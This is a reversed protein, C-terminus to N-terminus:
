SVKRGCKGAKQPHSTQRSSTRVKANFLTGGLYTALLCPETTVPTLKSFSCLRAAMSTITM